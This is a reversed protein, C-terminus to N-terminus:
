RNVRVRVRYKTSLGFRTFNVKNLLLLSPERAM